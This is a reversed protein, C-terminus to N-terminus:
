ERGELERKERRKRETTRGLEEHGQRESEDSRIEGGELDEKGAWADALQLQPSAVVEAPIGPHLRLDAGCGSHGVGRGWDVQDSYIRHMYLVFYGCIVGTCLLVQWTPLSAILQPACDSSANTFIQM